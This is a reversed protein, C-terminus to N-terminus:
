SIRFEPSLANLSKSLPAKIRDIKYNWDVKRFFESIQFKSSWSSNGARCSLRIRNRTVFMCTIDVKEQCSKKGSLKQKRVIEIKDFHKGQGSRWRSLMTMSSSTSERQRPPPTGSLSLWPSLFRQNQILNSHQATSWCVDSWLLKGKNNYKPLLFGHTLHFEFPTAGLRREMVQLDMVEWKVPCCFCPEGLQPSFPSSIILEVKVKHPLLFLARRPAPFYPILQHSESKSLQYVFVPRRGVNRSIHSSNIVKVKVQSVFVPRRRLNRPFIPHILRPLM